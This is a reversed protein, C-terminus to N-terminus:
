EIARSAGTSVVRSFDLAMAVSADVFQGIREELASTLKYDQNLISKRWDSTSPVFRDQRKTKNKRCGHVRGVWGLQWCFFKVL